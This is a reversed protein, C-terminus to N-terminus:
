RRRADLLRGAEVDEKGEGVEHGLHEEHDDTSHQDERGLRQDVVDVEADGRRPMVEQDRDGDPHDRVGPDLRDRVHGLLRAVRLLRDRAGDVPHHDGYERDVGGQRRHGQRGQRDGLLGVALVDGLQPDWLVLAPEGAVRDEAHDLRQPEARELVGALDVDAQQGRRDEDDGGVGPDDAHRPQHVRHAQMALQGVAEALQVRTEPVGQIPM